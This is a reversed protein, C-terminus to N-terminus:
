EGTTTISLSHDIILEQPTNSYHLIPTNSLSEFGLFIWMRNALVGNSWQEM